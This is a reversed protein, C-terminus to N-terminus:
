TGMDSLLKAMEARTISREPADEAPNGANEGKIKGAATVAEEVTLEDDPRFKNDTLDFVGEAICIGIPSKAWHKGSVDSCEFDFDWFEHGLARAFCLAAESRLVTGEPRFSGDEYMTMIGKFYVDLIAEAAEDGYEVDNFPMNGPLGREPLDPVNVGTEAFDGLPATGDKEWALAKIKKIKYNDNKPTQTFYTGNASIGYETKEVSILNGNKGYYAIYADYAEIAYDGVTEFRVAEGNKGFTIEVYPECVIYKIAVSKDADYEFAFVAANSEDRTSVGDSLYLSKKGSATQAGLIYTDADEPIKLKFSGNEAIQSLCITNGDSLRCEAFAEVNLGERECEITGSVNNCLLLTIEFDDGTFGFTRSESEDAPSKLPKVCYYCDYLRDDGTIGTIKIEYRKDEAIELEFQSKRKGSPILPTEAFDTVAVTKKGSVEATEVTAFIDNDTSLSYPRCVTITLTKKQLLTIDAVANETLKATGSKDSTLAGGAGLYGVECLGDANGIIKYSLASASAGSYLSIQKTRNEANLVVTESDTGDTLSDIVAVGNGTYKAFDVRVEVDGEPAFGEPLGVRCTISRAYEPTFSTGFDRAYAINLFEFDELVANKYRHYDFKVSVNFSKAAPLGDFEFRTSKEGKELVGEKSFAEGDAKVYITFPVDRDATEPLSLDLTYRVETQRAYVSIKNVKSFDYERCVYEYRGGFDATFYMNGDTLKEAPAEIICEAGTEGEPIVCMVSSLVDLEEGPETKNAVSINVGHGGEPAVAGDPLEAWVGVATSDTGTIYFDIRGNEASYTHSLREGAFDASIYLEGNVKIAAKENGTFSGNPVSVPPIGPAYGITEDSRYRAYSGDCSVTEVTDEESFTALGTVPGIIAGPPLLGATYPKLTLTGTVGLCDEATLTYVNDEKEVELNLLRFDEYHIYYQENRYVAGRSLTVEEGMNYVAVSEEACALTGCLCLLCIILAASLM